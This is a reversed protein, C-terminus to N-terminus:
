SILFPNAGLGQPKWLDFGIRSLRKRIVAIRTPDVSQLADLVAHIREMMADASTKPRNAALEFGTEGIPDKSHWRGTSPRYYRYDYYLLDTEMDLYKTSYGFPFGSAAGTKKIVEGFPGVGSVSNGSTSM